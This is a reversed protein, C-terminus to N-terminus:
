VRKLSQYLFSISFSGRDGRFVVQDGGYFVGIGWSLYHSTAM